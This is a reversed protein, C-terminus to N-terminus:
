SPSGRGLFPLLDAIESRSSAEETATPWPAMMYRRQLAGLVQDAIKERDHQDLVRPLEGEIVKRARATDNETM